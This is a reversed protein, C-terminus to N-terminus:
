DLRSSTQDNDVRLLLLQENITQIVHESTNCSAAWTLELTCGASQTNWFSVQTVAVVVTSVIRIFGVTCVTFTIENNWQWRAESLRAHLLWGTTCHLLFIKNRASIKCHWSVAVFKAYLSHWLVSSGVKSRSRHLPPDVGFFLYIFKVNSRVTDNQIVWNQELSRPLLLM